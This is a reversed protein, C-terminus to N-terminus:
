VRGPVIAAVAEEVASGSPATGQGTRANGGGRGGVPELSSKLVRGADLGSDASAAVVLAPPDATWGVFLARPM